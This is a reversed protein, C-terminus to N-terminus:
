LAVCRLAIGHSFEVICGWVIYDVGEGLWEYGM